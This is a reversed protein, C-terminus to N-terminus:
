AHQALWLRSLTGRLDRLAAGSVVKIGADAARRQNAESESLKGRYDVVMGRTRLGGLKLLTEMKYLVEAGRGGDGSGPPELNATKCEILHLTNRYLFAIDIENRAMQGQKGTGVGVTVGLAVDAIGPHAGRLSQLTAYVHAELWGGNVFRRATEDAFHLQEGTQRLMRADEFLGIVVGLAKSDAQQRDMRVTLGPAGHAQYALANLAGLAWGHQAAHDILRACLDRQDRTIQPHEQATVNYGHAQLIDRIRLQPQLPRSPTKEGLIIIEDTEVNVYFAPKGEARFVEQAAVAMLKTGGTVNLAIDQGSRTALFDLFADTLAGYDYADPLDLREIGLGPAKTRLVQEIAQAKDRMQASCALVVRQPRWDADLVPLLNPTAQASVLCLHTHHAPM